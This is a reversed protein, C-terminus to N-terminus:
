AEKASSRKACFVIDTGIISLESNEVPVVAWNNRPCWDYVRPSGLWPYIARLPFANKGPYLAPKVIQKLVCADHYSYQTIPKQSRVLLSGSDLVHVYVETQNYHPISEGIHQKVLPSLINFWEVGHLYYTPYWEKPSCLAEKCSGDEILHKGFYRMYPNENQLGTFEQPQLMVSANLHVFSDSLDCAIQALIDAMKNVFPGLCFSSFSIQIYGYFLGPHEMYPEAHMQGCLDPHKHFGLLKRDEARFINIINNIIQDNGQRVNTFLEDFFVPYDVSSELAYPAIRFQTQYKHFCSPLEKQYKLITSSNCTIQNMVYADFAIRMGSNDIIMWDQSLMDRKHKIRKGNRYWCFVFHDETIVHLHHLIKKIMTSLVDQNLFSYRISLTLQRCDIAQNIFHVSSVFQDSM